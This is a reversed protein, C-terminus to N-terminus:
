KFAGRAYLWGMMLSFAAGIFIFLVRGGIWLKIKVNARESMEDYAREWLGHMLEEDKLLMKIGEAVGEAIRDPLTDDIHRTVEEVVFDRDANM